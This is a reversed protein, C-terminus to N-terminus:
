ERCRPHNGDRRECFEADRDAREQERRDDREAREDARAEDREAKREQAEEQKTLIDTEGCEGALDGHALHAELASSGITLTKQNGPNGGPRHCVTVKTGAEEVAVVDLAATVPDPDDGLGDLADDYSAEITDGDTAALLGAAEDSTTALELLGRFNGTQAGDETLAVVIGVPDTTSTVVVDISDPGDTVDLDRDNVIVQVHDGVVLGGGDLDILEITGTVGHWEKIAVESPENDSVGGSGDIDLWAVLVDIGPGGEGTWTFEAEGDGDTAVTASSGANPGSVVEFSVAVGAPIVTDAVTATVTHSTFGPNGASLPDLSFSVDILDIQNVAEIADLDFGANDGSAYTV